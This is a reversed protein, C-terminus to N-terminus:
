PKKSLLLSARVEGDGKITFEKMGLCDEKFMIEQSSIHMDHLLLTARVEWDEKLAFEKVGLCNEKSM